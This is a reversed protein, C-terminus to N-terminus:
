VNMIKTNVITLQLIVVLFTLINVNEMAYLNMTIVATLTRKLNAILILTPAALIIKMKAVVFSHMM